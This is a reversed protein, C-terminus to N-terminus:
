QGEHGVGPRYPIEDRDVQMPTMNFRRHARGSLWGAIYGVLFVAAIVTCYLLGEIM